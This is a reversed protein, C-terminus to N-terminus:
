LPLLRFSSSTLATEGLVLSVPLHTGQPSFAQKTHLEFLVVLVTAVSAQLSIPRKFQLASFIYYAKQFIFYTTLSWTNSFHFGPKLAPEIVIFAFNSTKPFLISFYGLFTKMIMITQITM